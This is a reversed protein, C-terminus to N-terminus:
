ADAAAESPEPAPKPRRPRALGALGEPLALVAGIVFLGLPLLWHPTLDRFLEEVLVLVFAGLAPGALSGMGGLIVMVLVEGSRHWALLEPNVFGFQAAGLYGALGALAGAIVFAALKYRFTAFGLARMRQENDRIGVLVRGFLSGLMTRLLAYVILMAALAAYYFHGIRELDFLRVGFIAADPKQYIYVGDSGGIVGSEAFFSYLMQAFALTAMIFYVGSTRLVLFGIVLAALASAAMALPLSWWLSVAEYQPSVAVLVYAALGYFAAHGLSVLGTFGVLLDLSMAFIALIMIKTLLQLYFVKAVFLPVLALGLVALVLLGRSLRSM